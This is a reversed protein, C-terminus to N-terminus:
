GERGSAFAEKLGRYILELGREYADGTLTEALGGALEGAGRGAEPETTEGAARRALTATELLLFGNTFSAGVLWVDFFHSEPLGGKALLERLRRAFTLVPEEDRPALVVIQLAHPHRLAMARESRHMRLLTKDWAEGPQESLDIEEFLLGVVDRLMGERNPVSRYLMMPDVGLEAAVRRMSLANLGKRDILELATRAITTRDIEKGSRAM